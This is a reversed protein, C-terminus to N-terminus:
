VLLLSGAGSLILSDQSGLPDLNGVGNGSGGQGGTAVEHVQTLSGDNARSYQVVSNATGDNTAVYVFGSTQAAAMACCQFAITLYVGRLFMDKEGRRNQGIALISTLTHSLLVSSIGISVIRM